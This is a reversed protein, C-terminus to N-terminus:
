GVGNIKVSSIAGSQVGWSALIERYSGDNIMAQMALKVAQALTSGKAVPLSYLLVGYTDGVAVLKGASQKVAYLTVPSDAVFADVRGLEVADSADNQNSYAVVKIADRGQAKCHASRKPLDTLEEFTDKQVAVTKGCFNDPDLQATHSKQGWLIGAAYYDVMDVQKRREETDFISALGIDYTAASVGPIIHSFGVQEFRVRLGLKTAVENMLEVDWGAARGSADQFENPPYTTDVAVVLEGRLRVQEPLAARAAVDIQSDITPTPTPQPNSVACGTLGFAILASVLLSAKSSRTKVM